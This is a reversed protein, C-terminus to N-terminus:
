SDASASDAAEEEQAVPKEETATQEAAEETAAEAAETEEPEPAPPAKPKQMPPPAAATGWKNLRVKKILTAVKETPQAGVSLWYDIRELNLRVRQSKDRVLPDYHGVEEIAEGDRPRRADMVCIRYFPRHRRGLRKMRIRVAVCPEKTSFHKKTDKRQKRKRRLGVPKRRHSQDSKPETTRGGTGPSDKISPCKESNAIMSPRPIFTLEGRGRRLPTGAVPLVLASAAM